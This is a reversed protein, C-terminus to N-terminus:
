ENGTPYNFKTEPIQVGRFEMAPLVGDFKEVGKLIEVVGAFESTDGITEGTLANPLAELAVELPTSSNASIKLQLTTSKLRVPEQAHADSAYASLRGSEKELVFEFHGVEEGLEVLAGGHSAEHHHHHDHEDEKTGGEANTAASSAKTATANAPGVNAPSGCANLLAGSLLSVGLIVVFKKAHTKM